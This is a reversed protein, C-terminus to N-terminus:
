AVLPGVAARARGLRLRLRLRLPTGLGAFPGRCRACPALGGVEGVCMRLGCAGRVGGCAPPPSSEGNLVNAHSKCVAVDPIGVLAVDSFEFCEFRGYM